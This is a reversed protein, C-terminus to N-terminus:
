PAFRLIEVEAGSKVAARVRKRKVAPPLRIEVRKGFAAAIRRLMARSHGQCDADEFRCIVTAAPDVKKALQRQTLRAAIRM